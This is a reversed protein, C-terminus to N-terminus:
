DFLSLQVYKITKPKSELLVPEIESPKIYFDSNEQEIAGQQVEVFNTFWHLPFCGGLKSFNIDHYFDGHTTLPRIFFEKLEVTKYGRKRWILEAKFLKGHDLRFERMEPESSRTDKEIIQFYKAQFCGKHSDRNPFKSVYYHQTDNPFLYYSKGLELVATQGLDTCIGQLM